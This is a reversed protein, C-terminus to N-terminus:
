VGCIERRERRRTLVACRGNIEEVRWSGAQDGVRLNLLRGDANDRLLAVRQDAAGALGILSFSEGPRPTEATPATAARFLSGQPVAVARPGAEPSQTIQRPATANPSAPARVASPALLELQQVQLAGGFLAAALLLLIFALRM